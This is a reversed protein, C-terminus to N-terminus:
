DRAAEDAFGILAWGEDRGARRMAEVRHNGDELVLQRDENFTVILPPPEWGEEVRDEMDDVDDGWDDEDIPCMVREGEPGALRHLLRLPVELPGLWAGCQEALANGLVANDSGPSTLFARVWEATAGDDAAERAADVTYHQEDSM